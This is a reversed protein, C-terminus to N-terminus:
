APYLVTQHQLTRKLDAYQAYCGRLTGRLFDYNMGKSHPSKSSFVRLKKTDRPM